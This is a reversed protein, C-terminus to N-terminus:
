PRKLLSKKLKTWKEYASCIRDSGYNAKIECVKELLQARYLRPNNKHVFDITAALELEEKSWDSLHAVLKRTKATKESDCITKEFKKVLTRGDETLNFTYPSGKSQEIWKAGEATKVTNAFTFSFPGYYHLRYDRIDWDLYQCFYIMKQLKTRGVIKKDKSGDIAMCLLGVDNILTM